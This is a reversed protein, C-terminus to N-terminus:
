ARAWAATRRSGRSSSRRYIRPTPSASSPGNRIPTPCSGAPQSRRAPRSGCAPRPAAATAIRDVEADTRIECGAERAADAMLETVRGMGGRVFGWQRVGGDAAESAHDHLLVFATGPTSPGAVQDNIAHWGLAALVYPSAFYESLYQNASTSFLFALDALMRRQRFALRGWRAAERLDRGTRM